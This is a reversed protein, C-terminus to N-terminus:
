SSVKSSCAWRCCSSPPQPTTPTKWTSSPGLTTSSPLSPSTALTAGTLPLHHAPHRLHPPPHRPRHLPLLALRPPPLAQLQHGPPAQEEWAPQLRRFVGGGEECDLGHEKEEDPLSSSQHNPSPQIYGCEVRRQPAAPVHWEDVQALWIEDNTNLLSPFVFKYFLKLLRLDQVGRGSRWEVRQLPWGAKLLSAPPFMGQVFCGERLLPFQVQCWSGGGLLEEAMALCSESLIARSDLLIHCSIWYMWWLMIAFLHKQFCALCPWEQEKLEPLPQVQQHRAVGQDVNHVEGHLIVNNRKRM